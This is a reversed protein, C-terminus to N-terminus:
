KQKKVEIWVKRKDESVQKVAVEIGHKPLVKGGAPNFPSSYDRNDDFLSIGKEAPYKMKVDPYVIDM